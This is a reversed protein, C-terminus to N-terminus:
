KKEECTFNSIVLRGPLNTSAQTVAGEADEVLFHQVNQNVKYATVTHTFGGFIATLTGATQTGQTQNNVFHYDGVFGAPCSTGVHPGHLDAAWAVTPIALAVVLGIGAILKRM